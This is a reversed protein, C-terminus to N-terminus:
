EVQLVILHLKTIKKKNRYPPSIQKKRQLFLELKLYSNWIQHAFADQSPPIDHVM